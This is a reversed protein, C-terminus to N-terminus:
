SVIFWALQEEGKLWRAIDYIRIGENDYMAHGTRAILIKPYSDRISALPTLERSLTESSAINDSVRIYLKESRKLAVFDIEKEYLKGVYVEYGRRLLELAVLNEYLKGYDMNVTGLRAYRFSHDVLYYKDSSNLCRKGKIDYRKVDYFLFAYGLYKVYNGVTVHNTKYNEAQLKRTVNHISTLESMNGMLFDALKGLLTLNALKYRWVIDRTMITSFVSNIYNARDQSTRYLYSGALGGETVYREFM